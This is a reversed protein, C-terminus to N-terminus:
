RVGGAVDAAVARALNSDAPDGRNPGAFWGRSESWAVRGIWVFSCGHKEAIAERRAIEAPSLSEKVIGFCFTNM